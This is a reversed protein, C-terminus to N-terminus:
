EARINASRVVKQWRALSARLSAAYDEPGMGIVEASQSALREAVDPLKLVRAVDSSFRAVIEPPMKTPFNQQACVPLGFAALAAM